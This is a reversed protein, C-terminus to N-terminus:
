AVITVAFCFDFIVLRRRPDRRYVLTEVVEKRAPCIVSSAETGHIIHM